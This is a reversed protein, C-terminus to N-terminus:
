SLLALAKEALDKPLPKGHYKALMPKPDFTDVQSPGGNLYIHIIHKAKAPFQPQRPALPSILESAAASPGAGGLLAHLGILGLGTGTQSLMRRRTFEM